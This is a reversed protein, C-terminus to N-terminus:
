SGEVPAVQVGDSGCYVYGDSAPVSVQVATTGNPPILHFSGIVPCTTEGGTPQQGVGVVFNAKSGVALSVAVVGNGAPGTTLRNDTSTLLTGNQAYVSVGFYGGAGCTPGNQNLVAFTYDGTGAAAQVGDLTIQLSTPPCSVPVGSPAAATTAPTTTSPVATPTTTSPVTTPTTTSPLTTPSSTTPETTEPPATTATTPTAPTTTTAEDGVSAQHATSGCATLSTAAVLVPVLLYMTKRSVHHNRFRIGLHLLSPWGSLRSM